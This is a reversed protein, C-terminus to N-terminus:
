VARHRTTGRGFAQKVADELRKIAHGTVVRQGEGEGVTRAYTGAEQARQDLAYAVNLQEILAPAKYVYLQTGSTHAAATTGLAGREVLASRAWQISAASHAALTSGGVARQVTLNNGSIDRVLVRESDILLEEDVFFASGSSVALTQAAASAALTGTQGSAAWSRDNVIVRESDIRIISGVGFPANITMSGTSSSPSSGLLYTSLTKEVVTSGCWVGTIVTSGQGSAAGPDLYSNTARSVQVADYPPGSDTPWGSSAATISTGGSTASTFTSLSNMGLWLRYSNGTNGTAGSPWDYTISGLWPAFGPRTGDGRECLSDIRRAGAEIAWDIEAAQYASAKIDAARMVRERTTYVAGMGAVEPATAQGGSSAGTLSLTIPLTAASTVDMTSTGTLALTVTHTASSTHNESTSTFEIDVFYNATSSTTPMAVSGSVIFYGSNGTTVGGVTKPWGYGSTAVYNDPTVISAEYVVGASLDTSTITTQNWANATPSSFAAGALAATDAVRWLTGSVTGSPLTSPFYWRIATVTIPVSPTFRFGLNYPGDTALLTGPTEAGFFNVM